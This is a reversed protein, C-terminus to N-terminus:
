DSLDGCMEIKEAITAAIPKARSRKPHFRDSPYHRDFFLSSENLAVIEFSSFEVRGSMLMTPRNTAVLRVRARSFAFGVFPLPHNSAGILVFMGVIRLALCQSEFARPAVLM